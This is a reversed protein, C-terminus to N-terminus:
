SRADLERRILDGVRERLNLLNCRYPSLARVEDALQQEGLEEELWASFDNDQRGLRLRCSIFHHFMVDARVTRVIRELEELTNAVHGTSYIFTTAEQFFFEQGRKAHTIYETQGLYKEILGAVRQRAGFVDSEELPDVVALREGLVDERLTQHVWRAFDNVFGGQLIHRRFLAHYTHYFISEASVRNIARGLERLNTVRFGTYRILHSESVFHFPRAM